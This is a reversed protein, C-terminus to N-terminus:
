INNIEVRIREAIKLNEGSVSSPDGRYQRVDFADINITCYTGPADQKIVPGPNVCIAGGNDVRKVFQMLDSPTILIDPVTNILLKEV